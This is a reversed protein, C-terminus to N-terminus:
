IRGGIDQLIKRGVELCENKLEKKIKCNMLYNRFINEHDHMEYIQFAEPVTKKAHRVIGHFYWSKKELWEVLFDLDPSKSDSMEIILRTICESIDNQMIKKCSENIKEDDMDLVFTKYTRDNVPKFSCQFNKHNIIAFYKTHNEENFSTRTISGIHFINKSLKQKKHIHGLLVLDIPLSELLSLDMEYREDQLSKDTAFHGVLVSPSSIQRSLISIKKMNWIRFDTHSSINFQGRNVWPFLIFDVGGLRIIDPETIIHLNPIFTAMSEFEHLTHNSSHYVSQDHNGPILIVRLGSDLWEHVINAFM